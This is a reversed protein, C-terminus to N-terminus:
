YYTFKTTMQNNSSSTHPTEGRSSSTADQAVKKKKRHHTKQDYARLKSPDDSSYGGIGGWEGAIDENEETDSWHGDVTYEPPVARFTGDRGRSYWRGEFEDYFMDGDSIDAFPGGGGGDGGGGYGYDGDGWGGDPPPPPPYPQYQGGGGIAPLSFFLFAIATTVWSFLMKGVSILEEVIFQMSYLILPIILLLGLIEIATIAFCYDYDCADPFQSADRFREFVGDTFTSWTVWEFLMTHTISPFWRELAYALTHFPTSFGLREGCNEFSPYCDCGETFPVCVQTINECGGPDLVMSRPVIWMNTFLWKLADRVYGVIWTPLNPAWMIWYIPICFKVTGNPGDCPTGWLPLCVKHTGNLKDCGVSWPSFFLLAYLLGVDGKDVDVNLNTSWEITANLLQDSSNMGIASAVTGLLIEDISGSELEVGLFTKLVWISLATAKSAIIGAGVISTTPDPINPRRIVFKSFNFNSLVAEVTMLGDGFRQTGNGLGAADCTADTLLELVDFIDGIPGERSFTQWLCLRRMLDDWDYGCLIYCDWAVAGPPPARPDALGSGVADRINRAMIQDGRGAGSRERASAISRYHKGIAATPRGARENFSDLRKCPATWPMAACASEELALAVYSGFDKFKGSGEKRGRVGPIRHVRRSEARARSLKASWQRSSHTLGWSWEEYAADVDDPHERYDCFFENCPIPMRDICQSTRPICQSPYPVPDVNRNCERPEVSPIECNGTPCEMTPNSCEDGTENGPTEGGCSGEPISPAEWPTSQGRMTECDVYGCAILLRDSYDHMQDVDLPTNYPGSAPGAWHSKADELLDVYRPVLWDEIKDCECGVEPTSYTEWYEGGDGDPGRMVCASGTLKSIGSGSSPPCMQAQFGTDVTIYTKKTFPLYINEVQDSYSITGAGLIPFTTTLLLDEGPLHDCLWKRAAPTSKLNPDSLARYAACDVGDNIMTSCNPTQLTSGDGVRCLYSCFDGTHVMNILCSVNTAIFTWPLPVSSENLPITMPSGGLEASPFTTTNCSANAETVPPHLPGCSLTANTGCGAKTPGMAMVGMGSSPAGEVLDICITAIDCYACAAHCGPPLLPVICGPPCPCGDIMPGCGPVGDCAYTEGCLKIHEGIHAGYICYIKTVPNDNYDWPNRWWVRQGDIMGSQNAPVSSPSCVGDFEYSFWTAWPLGTCVTANRFVTIPYTMEAPVDTQVDPCTYPLDFCGDFEGDGVSELCNESAPCWLGKACHYDAVCGPGSPASFTASLDCATSDCWGTSTRDVCNSGNLGADWTYNSLLWTTCNNWSGYVTHPAGYAISDNRVYVTDNVLVTSVTCSGVACYEDHGCLQLDSRTAVVISCTTTSCQPPSLPVSSPMGTVNPTGMDPDYTVSSSINIYESRTPRMSETVTVFDMDDILHYTPERAVRPCIFDMSYRKYTRSTYSFDYKCHCKDPDASPPCVCSNELGPDADGEFCDMSRPNCMTLGISFPDASPDYEVDCMTLCSSMSEPDQMCDTIGGPSQCGSYDTMCFDQCVRGLLRKGQYTLNSLGNVSRMYESSNWSMSCKVRCFEPRPYGYMGIDMCVGSATEPGDLGTESSMDIDLIIRADWETINVDGGTTNHYGRYVLFAVSRAGWIEAHTTANLYAFCATDFAVSNYPSACMRSCMGLLEPHSAAISPCRSIPCARKVELLREADYCGPCSSPCSDFLTYTDDFYIGWGPITYNHGCGEVYHALIDRQIPGDRILGSRPNVVAPVVRRKERSGTVVERADGELDEYIKDITEKVKSFASCVQEGADDIEDDTMHVSKLFTKAANTIKTRVDGGEKKATAPGFTKMAKEFRSSMSDVGESGYLLSTAFEHLMLSASGWTVVNSKAAFVECKDKWDEHKGQVAHKCIAAGLLGEDSARQICLMLRTKELFTPEWIEDPSAKLGDTMEMLRLSEQNRVNEVLRYCSDGEPIAEMLIEIFLISKRVSRISDPGDRCLGFCDTIDDGIDEFKDIVKNYVDTIRDTIWDILCDKFNALCEIITYGNFTDNGFILDNIIGFVMGRIVDEWLVKFFAIISDGLDSAADGIDGATILTAIFAVFKLIVDLGATILKVFLSDPNVFLDEVLDALLDAIDGLPSWIIAVLKGFARLWSSAALFMPKLIDYPTKGIGCIPLFDGVVGIASKAIWAFFLIETETTTWLINLTSGIIAGVADSIEWMLERADDDKVILALVNYATGAIATGTKYCVLLRIMIFDDVSIGHQLYPSNTIAGITGTIQRVLTVPVAVFAQVLEAIECLLGTKAIDLSLIFNRMAVPLSDLADQLACIGITANGLWDYIDSKGGSAATDISSGIVALVSKAAGTAIGITSNLVGMMGQQLDETSTAIDESLGKAGAFEAIMGAVRGVVGVPVMVIHSAARAFTEAMCTLEMMGVAIPIGDGSVKSLAVDLIAKVISMPAAFVDRYALPINPDIVGLPAYLQEVGHLIAGLAEMVRDDIVTGNPAKGSCRGSGSCYGGAGPCASGIAIGAEICTYCTGADWIPKATSNCNPDKYKVSIFSNVIELIVTNGASLIKAIAYPTSSLVGGPDVELVGHWYPIEITLHWEAFAEDLESVATELDCIPPDFMTLLFDTEPYMALRPIVDLLRELSVILHELPGEPCPILNLPCIDIGLDEVKAHLPCDSRNTWNQAISIRKALCPAWSLSASAAKAFQLQREVLSGLIRPDFHWHKFDGTHVTAAIFRVIGSALLGTANFMEPWTQIPIMPPIFDGLGLPRMPRGNMPDIMLNLIEISELYSAVSETLENMVSGHDDGLLANLYATSVNGFLRTAIEMDVLSLPVQDIAQRLVSVSSNITRDVEDFICDSTVRRAQDFSHAHTSIDEVYEIAAVVLRIPAVSLDGIAGDFARETCAIAPICIDTAPICGWSKNFPASCTRWSPAIINTIETVSQSGGAAARELEAFVCDLYNGNAYDSYSRVEIGMKIAAEVLRVAAICTHNIFMPGYIGIIPIPAGIRALTGFSQVTDATEHCIAAYYDFLKTVNIYSADFGHESIGRLIDYVTVVTDATAPFLARIPGGIRVDSRIPVTAGHEEPFFTGELAWRLIDLTGSLISDVFDGVCCWFANFYGELRSIDYLVEAMDLHPRPATCAGTIVCMLWTLVNAVLTIGESLLNVLITQIEAIFGILNAIACRMDDDILILTLADFAYGAVSCYCGVFGSLSASLNALYDFAIAVVLQTENIAIQQGSIATAEMHSLMVATRVTPTVGALVTDFLQGTENCRLPVLAMDVAFTTPFRTYFNWLGAGVRYIPDVTDLIPVVLQSGLPRVVDTYAIQVGGLFVHHFPFWVISFVLLGVLAIFMIPNSIAFRVIDVFFLVMNKAFNFLGLFAGSVGSLFADGITSLSNGIEM